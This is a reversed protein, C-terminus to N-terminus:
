IELRICVKCPNEKGVRKITVVLERTTADVTQETTFTFGNM